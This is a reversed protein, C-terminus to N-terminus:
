VNLLIKNICYRDTIDNNLGTATTIITTICWPCIASLRDRTKGQNGTKSSWIENRQIDITEQFEGYNKQM